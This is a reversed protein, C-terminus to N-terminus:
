RFIKYNILISLFMEFYLIISSGKNRDSTLFGTLGFHCQESLPLTVGETIQSIVYSQVCFLRSRRANETIYTM